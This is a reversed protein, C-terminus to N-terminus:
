RNRSRSRSVNHSSGLRHEKRSKEFHAKPLQPSNSRSDRSQRGRRSQHGNCEEHHSYRHHSSHSKRRRHHQNHNHNSYERDRSRNRDHSQHGHGYENSDDHHHNHQGNSNIHHQDRYNEHGNPRSSCYKSDDYSDGRIPPPSPRPPSVERRARERSRHRRSSTDRRGRSRSRSDRLRGRSDKNRMQGPTKRDGEAFQVNMDNGKLRMRDLNQLADEADRWDDFQVYAFGRPERTHYDLPIYVDKVRGYREFLNRLEDVRVDRHVNKVFLSSNAPRSYRSM